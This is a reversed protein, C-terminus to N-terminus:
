KKVEILIFESGVFSRAVLQLGTKDIVLREYAEGVDKFLSVIKAKAFKEAEFSSLQAVHLFKRGAENVKIIKGLRDVLFIPEHLKELFQFGFDAM